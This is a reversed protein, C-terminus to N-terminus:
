QCMVQHSFVSGVRSACVLVSLVTTAIASGGPSLSLPLTTTIPRDLAACFVSSGQGGKEMAADSVHLRCLQLVLGLVRLM